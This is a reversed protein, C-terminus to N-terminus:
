ESKRRKLEAHYAAILDDHRLVGLVRSSDESSVVLLEEVNTEMFKMFADYFNDEPTVTQPPAMLDQAIVM